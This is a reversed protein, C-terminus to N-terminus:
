RAPPPTVTAALEDVLAHLQEARDGLALIQILLPDVCVVRSVMARTPEVVEFYAGNDVHIVKTSTFDTLFVSDVLPGLETDTALRIRTCTDKADAVRIAIAADRDAVVYWKSLRTADEDEPMPAPWATAPIEIAAGDVLALPVRGPAPPRLQLSALFAKGVPHDPRAPDDVRRGGALVAIVWKYGYYGRMEGSGGDPTTFTMGRSVTAGHIPPIDISTRVSDTALGSVMQDLMTDLEITTPTTTRPMVIVGLVGRDREDTFMALTGTDVRSITAGAPFVIAMPLERCHFAGDAVTVHDGAAFCAADLEAAPPGQNGPPPPPHTTSGCAVLGLALALRRTM